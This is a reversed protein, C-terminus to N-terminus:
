KRGVPDLSATPEDLILLDPDGLLAQALGMRQTMGKSYKAVRKDAADTLNVLALVDDIRKDRVSDDIAALRAYFALLKRGTYYDHLHVSEPMFGLRRRVATDSVPRDFMMADGTTPQMFNLLLNITTTKGAGNPGLFGFVEGENVTLDLGDLAVTDQKDRLGGRYTKGLNRTVIAAM